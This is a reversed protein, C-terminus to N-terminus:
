KTKDTCARYGVLCSLGIVMPILAYGANATGNSTLVYIAGAIALADFAISLILLLKKMDDCGKTGNLNILQNEVKEFIKVKSKSIKAIM